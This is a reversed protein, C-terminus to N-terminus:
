RSVGVIPIVDTIVCCHFPDNMVSKDMYSVLHFPLSCFLALVFHQIFAMKSIDLVTDLTAFFNVNCCHSIFALLIICGM